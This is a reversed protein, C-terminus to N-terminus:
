GLLPVFSSELASVNDRSCDGDHRVRKKVPEVVRTPELAGAIRIAPAPPGRDASGDFPPERGAVEAEVVLVPRQGLPLAIM